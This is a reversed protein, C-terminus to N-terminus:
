ASKYLSNRDILAYKFLRGKILSVCIKLLKFRMLTSIYFLYVMLEIDYNKELFYVFWQGILRLM